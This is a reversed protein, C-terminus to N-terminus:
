FNIFFRYPSQFFDIYIQLQFNFALIRAEPHTQSHNQSPKPLTKLPPRLSKPSRPDNKQSIKEHKYKSHDEFASKSAEPDCKPEPKPPTQPPNQSPHFNFLISLFFTINRIWTPSLTEGM